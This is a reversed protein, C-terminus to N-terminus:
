GADLRVILGILAERVAQERIAQRDGPFLRHEAERHREDGWALWVTGVPKADSGGGPGAVGSIAVGLEAGSDRCAGAVMAEVVERSVAGHAELLSQPVGLLRTKAANSYTVYGTEFYDSSGAVATIASAVGGGTCSEAATVRVGKTRCLEGLREALTILDLHSLSAVSVDM